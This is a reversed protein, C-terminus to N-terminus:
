ILRKWIAAAHKSLEIQLPTKHQKEVGKDVTDKEKLLKRWMGKLELMLYAKCNATFFQKETM